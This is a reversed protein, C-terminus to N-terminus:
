GFPGARVGAAPVSVPAPRPQYVYYPGIQQRRVYRHSLAELLRPSFRERADADALGEELPFETVVWALRGEEVERVLPGEDWHGARALQEFHFLQVHIEGRTFLSFSGQQSIVPGPATELLRRVAPAAANAARDWPGEELLVFALGYAVILGLGAGLAGGRRTPFSFGGSRLLYLAAVVVLELIYQGHAGARGLSAATVPLLLSLYCELPELAARARLRAVLRVVALGVFLSYPGAHHLFVLPIQLADYPVRNAAVADELFRGATSVQLWLLPPLAMALLTALYRWLRRPDRWALHFALAAPLALQTQKAGIALVALLPSAVEALWARPSEFLAFSWVTLAVALMQPHPRAANYLFAPVLILLCAAWLGQRASGTWRRALLALAAALAGTALLSLLRAPRYSLGTVRLGLATLQLYLPTYINVVWPPGDVGRYLPEGRAVRYAHNLVEPDADDWSHRAPWVLPAWLLVVVLAAWPVARTVWAEVRQV